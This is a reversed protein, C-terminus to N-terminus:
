EHASRREDNHPLEVDDCFSHPIGAACSGCGYDPSEPRRRVPTTMDRRLETDHGRPTQPRDSM